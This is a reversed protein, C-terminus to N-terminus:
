QLATFTIIELEGTYGDYIQPNQAGFTYTKVQPEAYIFTEEASIRGNANADAAGELGKVVFYTFVGNQLVSHELLHENDDSAMLVVRGDEGIDKKFGDVLKVGLKPLTKIKADLDKVMGGSFCSDIIVVMKNSNIMDLAVDLEDDRICNFDHPCIYEDYGDAEDYPPLDTGYTGHGSFFFIAIDNADVNTILWDIAALINSRDADGDILLKIHDARWNPDSLLTNYIDMADDDTYNLDSSTGEYDAIGVIVAWYEVETSLEWKADDWDIVEYTEPDFFVAIWTYMGDPVEPLTFVWQNSNNYDLEAPLIASPISMLLHLGKSPTEMLLAFGIDIADGPNTINLGIYMTDGPVYSTKDTYISITPMSYNEWPILPYNDERSDINYTDGIGDGNTDSGTCDNWDGMYNIHASGSPYVNDINNIFDNLYIKNNLLKFHISYWNNLPNNDTIICNDAWLYIESHFPAEKVAFESIDV